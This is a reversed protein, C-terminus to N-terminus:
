STSQLDDTVNVIPLGNCGVGVGAGGAAELRQGVLAATSGDTRVIALEGDATARAKWGSPWAPESVAAGDDNVLVICGDRLALQGAILAGDMDNGPVWENNRIEVTGGQSVGPTAQAPPEVAGGTCAVALPFLPAVLWRARAVTDGRGHM